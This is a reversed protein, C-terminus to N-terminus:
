PSKTETTIWNLVSKFFVRYIIDRSVVCFVHENREAFVTSRRSIQETKKNNHIGLDICSSHEAQLTGKHTTFIQFIPTIDGIIRFPM